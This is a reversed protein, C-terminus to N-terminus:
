GSGRGDSEGRQRATAAPPLSSLRRGAGTKRSVMRGIGGGSIEPSPWDKEKEKRRRQAVVRGYFRFRAAACRLRTTSFAPILATTTMIENRRKGEGQGEGMPHSLPHGGDAPTNELARPAADEAGVSNPLVKIQLAHVLGRKPVQRCTALDFLPSTDGCELDPCSWPVPRPKAQPKFPAGLM